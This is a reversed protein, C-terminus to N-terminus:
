LRAQHDAWFTKAAKIDRKQTRKNGACLILSERGNDALYIRYGPGVNVKLELVGEGVNQYEGLSGLRLRAIRADVSARGVHDKLDSMWDDFPAMGSATVYVSVTRPRALM